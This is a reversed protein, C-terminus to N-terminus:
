SAPCGPPAPEDIKRTAGQPLLQVAITQAPQDTRNTLMHEDAGGADVFGQGASYTTGSCDGATYNRVTGQTVLVLSPGPHTHWGSTSHPSFDNTTVWVDATGLTKVFAPWFQSPLANARLDM